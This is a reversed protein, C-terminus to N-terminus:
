DMSGHGGASENWNPDDIEEWGLDMLEILAEHYQPTDLLRFFHMEKLARQHWEHHIHRPANPHQPLDLPEIKPIFDFLWKDNFLEM